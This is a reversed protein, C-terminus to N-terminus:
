QQMKTGSKLLLEVIEPNGLVRAMYKSLYDLSIEGHTQNTDAVCDKAIIVDFDRQYADIASTRICAHTKVGCIILSTISNAALISDLQTEHFASFRKKVVDVDNNDTILEPLLQSGRTGKITIKTNTKRLGVYADSLDSEFEQRVWIVPANNQRAVNTLQNVNQALHTPNTPYSSDDRFFDQVLDIAVLAFKNESKTM